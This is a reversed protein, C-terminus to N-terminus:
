VMQCLTFQVKSDGPRRDWVKWVIKKTDTRSTKDRVTEEVIYVFTKTLYGFIVIVQKEFVSGDEEEGWALSDISLIDTFQSNVPKENPSLFKFQLM